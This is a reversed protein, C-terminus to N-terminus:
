TLGDVVLRESHRDRHNTGANGPTYTRRFKLGLGRTLCRM